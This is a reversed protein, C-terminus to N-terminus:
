GHQFPQSRLLRRLVLFLFSLPRAVFRRVSASDVLLAESTEERKLAEKERESGRCDIFIRPSSLSPSFILSRRASFRSLPRPFRRQIEVTSSVLLCFLLFSTPSLLQPNRELFIWRGKNGHGRKVTKKKKNHPRSCSSFRANNARFVCGTPWTVHLQFATLLRTKTMLTKTQKRKRRREPNSPQCKTRQRTRKHNGSSSRPLGFCEARADRARGGRRSGSFTQEELLTHSLSVSLSLSFALAATAKPRKRETSAARPM